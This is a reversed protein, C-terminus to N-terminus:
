SCSFSMPRQQSEVRTKTECPDPGVSHVISERFFPKMVTIMGYGMEGRGQWLERLSWCNYCLWNGALKCVGFEIIKPMWSGSRSSSVKPTIVCPGRGILFYQVKLIQQWGLAQGIKPVTAKEDQRFLIRVFEDSGYVALSRLTCKRSTARDWDTRRIPDTEWPSSGTRSPARSVRPSSSWTRFMFPFWLFIWHQHMQISFLYKEKSQGPLILQLPCQRRSIWARWRSAFLQLCWDCTKAVLFQESWM